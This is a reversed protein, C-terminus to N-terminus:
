FATEPRLCEIRFWVIAAVQGSTRRPPGPLATLPSSFNLHAFEPSRMEQPSEVIPRVHVGPGESGGLPITIAPPRGSPPQVMPDDMSDMSPGSSHSSVTGKQVIDMTRGMKELVESNATKTTQLSSASRGHAISYMQGRRDHPSTEDAYSHTSEEIPVLRPPPNPDRIEIPRPQRRGSDSAVRELLPTKALRAWWSNSRSVPEAPTPNADIISSPRPRPSQRPAAREHSHSSRSPASAANAPTHSSSAHSADSLTPNSSLTPVSAREPVPSLRTLDATAAPGRISAISAYPRPPPDTLAPVSQADDSDEDADLYRYYDAPPEVDEVEYDAFPDDYPTIMASSAVTAQSLQGGHRTRRTSSLVSDEVILAADDAYPEYSQEKDWWATTSRSGASAERSRMGRTGSAYALVTGGVSRLSALSEHMMDALTPRRSVSTWSSRSSSTERRVGHYPVDFQRTDEDALMDRRQAHRVPAFGLVFAGLKSRVNQVVAKERNGAIPLAGGADDDSGELVHFSDRSHQRRIYWVAASTGVLLGLIGFVTGLAISTAHHGHSSEGVPTGAGDGNGSGSGSSGSGNGSGSNSATPDAGSGTTGSAGGSGPGTGSSGHGSGSPDSSGSFTPAPGSLTTTTPQTIAQPPSYSSLWSGSSTDFLYLSANAPGNTAYGFGFLVQSGLAVAFHDRRPGLESLASVSTWVMPSKTTDLIWGDSYSTQLQADAGGQIVVKGGDVLTAAFGRRPDPLSSASVSVTSWIPTSQTTDLSWVTSFPLLTNSSQEYGGFVILRGDSLVVSTHGYIGPPANTSSLESFSPASPNFVYHTSFASGSGDTKEGGVIYVKGGTSSASHYMRRLPEDAWSDAEDDWIPSQPNKVNVFDASDSSEPVTVASNPGLDGGFLLMYSTNVPSVTHWAVAPGQSSSCDSCGSTYQWPPSSLNFSSSLSLVFMDNTPPASSYSYQNYEDTRGGQIFLVTEVLTAAQGWRPIAAQESAAQLDHVLALIALARLIVVAVTADVVLYDDVLQAQNQNAQHCFVAKTGIQGSPRHQLKAAFRVNNDTRLLHAVESQGDIGWRALVYSSEATKASPGASSSDSSRSQSSSASPTSAPPHGRKARPSRGRKKHQYEQLLARYAESIEIFKQQAEEKDTTHRDPHWKLALRKYAIRIDEVGTDDPNLDLVQFYETKPVAVPM